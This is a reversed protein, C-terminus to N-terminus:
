YSWYRTQLDFNTVAGANAQFRWKFNTPTPITYRSYTYSQPAFNSVLAAVSSTLTGAANTKMTWSNEVVNQVPVAAALPLGLVLDATLCNVPVPLFYEVLGSGATRSVHESHMGLFRSYGTYFRIRLVAKADGGSIAQYSWVMNDGYVQCHGTAFRTVTQASPSLNAFAKLYFQTQLYNNGNPVDWGSIFALENIAVDDTFLGGNGDGMEWSISNAERPIPIVQSAFAGNISAIEYNVEKLFGSM